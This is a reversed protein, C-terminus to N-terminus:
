GFSVVRRQGSGSLDASRLSALQSTDNGRFRSDLLHHWLERKGLLFVTAPVICGPNRSVCSHCM